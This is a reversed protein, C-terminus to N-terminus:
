RRLGDIFMEWYLEAGGEHTLKGSSQRMAMGLPQLHMGEADASVSMSENFGGIGSSENASFAIGDGMAGHGTFIRCWAAKRGDRYGTATFQNADIRRFSVQIGPNRATLENLSNEFYRAIYEFAEDRFRDKDADTFSRPLRLNSSRPGPTPWAIPQVPPQAAAAPVPAGGQSEGRANVAARIAQVIQLFAEDLDPFSRAPKGDRPTALLKGFPAAHWDCHRLIVPIVRAQKLDHRELARRMEVDYCYSSALFDPSVLLLIVDARELEQWISHDINDGAPICRDHFAEIVGQRKLMALHKELQDRLEEDAHSYSFFVRAM